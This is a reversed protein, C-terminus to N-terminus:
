RGDPVQETRLTVGKRQILQVWQVQEGQPRKGKQDGYIVITIELCGLAGLSSTANKLVRPKCGAM